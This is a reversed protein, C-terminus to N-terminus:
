QPFSMFSTIVIRNIMHSFYSKVNYGSSPCFVSIILSMLTHVSISQADATYQLVNFDGWLIGERGGQSASSCLHVSLLLYVYTYIM